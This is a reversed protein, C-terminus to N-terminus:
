NEVEMGEDENIDEWISSKKEFTFGSPMKNTTPPVLSSIDYESPERNADLVSVEISNM